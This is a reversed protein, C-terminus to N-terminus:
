AGAAPLCPHRRGRLARAPRAKVTDADGWLCMADIFSDSGGNALDAESFGERLWNNRYNALVM